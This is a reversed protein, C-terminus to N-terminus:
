TSSRLVGTAGENDSVMSVPTSASSPMVLLPWTVTSSRSAAPLQCYLTSPPLVQLAPTPLLKM